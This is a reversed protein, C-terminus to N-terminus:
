VHLKRLWQEHKVREEEDPNKNRELNQEEENAIAKMKLNQYILLRQAQEALTPDLWPVLQYSQKAIEKMEREYVTEERQKKRIGIYKDLTSGSSM